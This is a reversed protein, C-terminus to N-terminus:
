YGVITIWLVYIRRKRRNLSVVCAREYFRNECCVHTHAVVYNMRICCVRCSIFVKHANAAKIMRTFQARMWEPLTQAWSNSFKIINIADFPHRHANRRRVLCTRDTEYCCCCNCKVLSWAKCIKYSISSLPLTIDFENCQSNFQIVLMTNLWRNTFGCWTSEAILVISIQSTVPEIHSYHRVHIYINGWCSGHSSSPTTIVNNM